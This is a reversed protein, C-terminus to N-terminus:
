VLCSFALSLSKHHLRHTDRKILITDYQGHVLNRQHLVPVLLCQSDQVAKLLPAGLYILSLKQLVLWLPCTILYIVRRRERVRCALRPQLIVAVHSIFPFPFTTDTSFSGRYCKCGASLTLPLTIASMLMEPMYCAAPM